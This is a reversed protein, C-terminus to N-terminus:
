LCAYSCVHWGLKFFIFPLAHLSSTQELWIGKLVKQMLIAIKGVTLCVQSFILSLVQIMHKPCPKMNTRGFCELRLTLGCRQRWWLSIHDDLICICLPVTLDYEKSASQDYTCPPMIAVEHPPGFNIRVCTSSLNHHHNNVVEVFRLHIM